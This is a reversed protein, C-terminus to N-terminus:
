WRVVPLARRSPRELMKKIAGTKELRRVLDIYSRGWHRTLYTFGITKNQPQFIFEEKKQFRKLVEVLELTGQQTLKMNIRNATDDATIEVRGQTLIDGGDISQDIKHITYGINLPDHNILAWETCFSGKYYPSLGWHLNLVLPIGKLTEGKILSTGHVLVIDPQIEKLRNVVEQNNINDTELLPVQNPLGQWKSGLIHNYDKQFRAKSSLKHYVLFASNLLGRKKIKAWLKNSPTHERVVLEVPFHEALTNVFYHLYAPPGILCVIKMAAM